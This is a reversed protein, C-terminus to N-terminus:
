TLQYWKCDFNLRPENMQTCILNQNMQWMWEIWTKNANESVDYTQKGEFVM